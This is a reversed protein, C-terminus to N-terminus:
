NFLYFYMPFLILMSYESVIIKNSLNIKLLGCTCLLYNIDLYKYSFITCNIICMYWVAVFFGGCGTMGCFTEFKSLSSKGTTIYSKM